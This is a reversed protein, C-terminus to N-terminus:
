VQNLSPQSRPPPHPGVLVIKSPHYSKHRKVDEVQFYELAFVLVIAPLLVKVLFSGSKQFEVYSYLIGCGQASKNRGRSAWM